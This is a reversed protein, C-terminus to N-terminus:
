IEDKQIKEQLFKIEKYLRLTKSHNNSIQKHRNTHNAILKTEDQADLLCNNITSDVNELDMDLNKFSKKM